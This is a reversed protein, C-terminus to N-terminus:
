IKFIVGNMQQAKEIDKINYIDDMTFVGSKINEKIEKILENWIAFRKTAIVMAKLHLGYFDHDDFDPLKLNKIAFNKLFEKYNAERINKEILPRALTNYKPRSKRSARNNSSARLLKIREPAQVNLDYNRCVVFYHNGGYESILVSITKNAVAKMAALFVKYNIIEPLDDIITKISLEIADIHPFLAGAYIERIMALPIGKSKEVIYIPVTNHHNGTLVPLDAGELDYLGSKFIHAFGSEREFKLLFDCYKDMYPDGEQNLHFTVKNLIPKHLFNNEYHYGTLLVSLDDYNAVPDSILDPHLRAIHNFNLVSRIDNPLGTKTLTALICGPPVVAMQEYLEQGHGLYVYSKAKSLEAEAKSLEAM